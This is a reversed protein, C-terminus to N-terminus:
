IQNVSSLIKKKYANPRNLYNLFNTKALSTILHEKGVKKV